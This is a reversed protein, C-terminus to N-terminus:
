QLRAEVTMNGERLKGEGELKGSGKHNCQFLKGIKYDKIV